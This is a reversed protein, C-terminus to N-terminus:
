RRYRIGVGDRSPMFDPSFALFNGNKRKAFNRILVDPLHLDSLFNGQYDYSFVKRHSWDYVYIVDREKDVAIDGIAIYEGPGRGLRHITNYFRGNSHFILVSKNRRDLIILLTDDQIVRSIGTILSEQTTELKIVKLSDSYHHLDIISEYKSLDIDIKDYKSKDCFSFAICIIIIFLIVQSRM